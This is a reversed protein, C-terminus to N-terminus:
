LKYRFGVYIKRLAQPQKALREDFAATYYKTDFINEAGLYFNFNTNMQYSLHLYAICNGEFEYSKDGNDGYLVNTHATTIDSFYRLTFGGSIKKHSCSLNWLIKHPSIKPISRNTIEDEGQTYSYSINTLIKKYLANFKLELGQSYMSGSNVNTRFFGTNPNENIILRNPNYYNHGSNYINPNAEVPRIIDKMENRYINAEVSIFDTPYFNVSFEYTTLKEPNINKNPLHMAYPNAWNEWKYSNAPQIYAKGFLAKLWLKKLPKFILGIRPNLSALYETNYDYRIGITATLPNFINVKSQVYAGLNQYYRQGLITDTFNNLGMLFGSKDTYGSFVQQREMNDVFPIDLNRTRPFSKIDFLSFGSSILFRQNINWVFHSNVGIYSSEAYKYGAKAESMEKNQIVSFNSAPNLQFSGVLLNIDLNFKNTNM